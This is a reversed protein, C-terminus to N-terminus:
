ALHNAALGAHLNNSVAAESGGPQLDVLITM